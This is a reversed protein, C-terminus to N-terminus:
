HTIEKMIIRPLKLTNKIIYLWNERWVSDASWVLIYTIAEEKKSPKLNSLKVETLM